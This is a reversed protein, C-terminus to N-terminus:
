DHQNLLNGVQESMDLLERYQQDDIYRCYTEERPFRKSIEFIKMALEFTLRYVKTETIKKYSM